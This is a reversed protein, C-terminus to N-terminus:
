FGSSQRQAIPAYPAEGHFQVVSRGAQAPHEKESSPLCTPRWLGFNSFIKRQNLDLPVTAISTLGLGGDPEMWAHYGHGFWELTHIISELASKDKVGILILNPIGDIKFKQAISLSAHNSQVIQQPLTLDQRVFM